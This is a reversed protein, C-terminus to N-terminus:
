PSAVYYRVLDNEVILFWGPGAGRLSGGVTQWRETGTKADRVSVRGDDDGDLVVDNLVATRPELADDPPLAGVWLQKGSAADLAAIRGKKIHDNPKLPLGEADRVLLTKEDADIPVVGRAGVWRVAGTDLDIAIPKGNENTSFMTSPPIGLIGNDSYLQHLRGACDDGSGGMSAYTELTMRYRTEGTKADVGVLIEKCAYSAPDFGVLTRDTIATSRGTYPMSAHRAGTAADVAYVRQKGKPGGLLILYPGAKQALISGVASPGLESVWPRPAEGAAVTWQPKGTRIDRRSLRCPNDCPLDATYVVSQFPAIAEAELNWLVKGTTLELAHATREPGKLKSQTVVVVGDGVTVTTYLPVEIKFKWKEAGSRRDFALVSKQTQLILFEGSVTAKADGKFSGKELQM